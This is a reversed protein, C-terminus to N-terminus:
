FRDGSDSLSMFLISLDIACIKVHVNIKASPLLNFKVKCRRTAKEDRRKSCWFKQHRRKRLSQQKLPLLTEDANFLRLILKRIDVKIVKKSPYKHSPGSCSSCLHSNTWISPYLTLLAYLHSKTLISPMTRFPMLSEQDLNFPITCSPCM